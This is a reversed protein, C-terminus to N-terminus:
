RLRCVEWRRRIFLEQRFVNDITRLTDFLLPEVPKRWQGVLFSQRDIRDQLLEHVQDSM